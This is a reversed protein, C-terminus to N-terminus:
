TWVHCDEKFGMDVKIHHYHKLQNGQNDTLKLKNYMRMTFMRGPVIARHLFNLLGTLKQITKVTVKKQSIILNFVNIAKVRKELPVALLHNRGDLLVGPFTMLPSAFETKEMSVTCGIQDCLTIFTRVMYNCQQESVSMFLFDDLYNTVKLHLRSEFIAVLADSFLQFPACSISSGFLLCKNVFYYLVHTKPHRAKLLLLCHQSIKILLLRFTSILDSKSYFITGNPRNKILDVCQQVAHDLDRYRVSCLSKDTFSNILKFSNKFDYSLHFILRTKGGAKPVLGVPSQVFFQYPIEQKTFPGAYRSLKVEKMIKEWMDYPDGVTFPLNDATDRRDMPGTYGLDFGERFGKVLKSAKVKDFRTEALLQMLIDPDIPTVIDEYNM